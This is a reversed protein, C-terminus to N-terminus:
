MATQGPDERWVYDSVHSEGFVGDAEWPGRQLFFGWWMTLFTLLSHDTVFVHPRPLFRM